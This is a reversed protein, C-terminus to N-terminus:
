LSLYKRNHFIMVYVQIWRSLTRTEKIKYRERDLSVNRFYFFKKHYALQLCDFQNKLFICINDYDNNRRVKIMIQEELGFMLDITYTQSFFTHSRYCNKCHLHPPPLYEQENDSIIYTNSAVYCSAINLNSVLMSFFTFLVFCM